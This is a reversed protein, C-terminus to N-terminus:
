SFEMIVMQMLHELTTKANCCDSNSGNSTPTPTRFSDLSINNELPYFSIFNNLGNLGNLNAEYYENDTDQYVFKTTAFTENSVGNRGNITIRGRYNEQNVEGVFIYAISPM